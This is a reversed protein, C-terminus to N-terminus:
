LESFHHQLFHNIIHKLFYTNATQVHVCCFWIIQMVKGTEFSTFTLIEENDITLPANCALDAITFNSFFFLFNLQAYENNTYVVFNYSSIKIILSEKLRVGRKRYYKRTVKM